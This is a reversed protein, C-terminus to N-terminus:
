RSPRRRGSASSPRPRAAAPAATPAPASPADEEGWWRLHEPVDIKTKVGAAVAREWDNVCYVGNPLLHFAVGMKIADGCNPCSRTAAMPKHYSRQEGFYDLAMRLDTGDEGRLFEELEKRNTNELSDALAILEAYRRERRKEAQVIEQESPVESLSVFLGQAFLDCGKSSGFVAAAEASPTWNPDNTPNNPNLLDIACRLGDHAEGRRRGNETNHVMQMLPDPIHAVAVFREGAPCARLHLKVWLPARDITFSRQSISFIHIMRDPERLMNRDIRPDWTGANLKMMKQQVEPDELGHLTAM